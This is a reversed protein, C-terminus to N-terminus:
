GPSQGPLLDIKNYVQLVPVEDAGIERLVDDVQDIHDQREEDWADIVHLLLSAEVTEQLTARFSEVLKHPLHRIFGVTDALIARGWM